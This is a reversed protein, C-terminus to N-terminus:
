APPHIDYTFRIDIYHVVLKGANPGVYVMLDGGQDRPIMNSTVGRDWALPTSRPGFADEIAQRMRRADYHRGAHCWFRFETEKSTSGVIEGDDNEQGPDGTTFRYGVGGNEAFVVFLSPAKGKRWDPVEGYVIEGDIFDLGATAKFREVIAGELTDAM